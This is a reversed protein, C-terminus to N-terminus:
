ANANETKFWRFNFMTITAVIMFIIVAISSALGFDQGQGGEFALRYTYSILIDTKGVQTSAGEMPPGGGTLLYIGVFNNINFAFSGILLPGIASMILPLTIKNFRTLPGANELKAADYLSEPISQLVGTTVLFMYPFGLWLNVMLCAVKAWTGHELWPVAPISFFALMENILGFDKNLMGKFILVSIFFPISYPLILLNRYVAKLKLNKDNVIIALTIGLSFSLFVSFFGWTMTWIFVNIFSRRLDKNTILSIYNSFGVWRYFGPMLEHGIESVYRGVEFDPTYIEGTQTNQIKDNELPLYRSRLNALKSSRYFLFLEDFHDPHDFQINQNKEFYSIVELPTLQRSEQIIDRSVLPALSYEKKDKLETYHDDNTVLLTKKNTTQYIKFKIFTPNDPLYSEELLIDKVQDKDFFHGTSLNSLSIVFTFFIPLVM